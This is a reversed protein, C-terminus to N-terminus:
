EDDDDNNIVGDIDDDDDDDDFSWTVGVPSPRLKKLEPLNPRYHHLVTTHPCKIWNSHHIFSM